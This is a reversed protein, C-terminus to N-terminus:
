LAVVLVLGDPDVDVGILRPHAGPEEDTCIRPTGDRQGDLVSRRGLVGDPVVRGAVRVESAAMTLEGDDVSVDLDAEVPVPGVPAEVVGAVRLVGDALTVQPAVLPGEDMREVVIDTVADASVRVEGRLGGTALQWAVPASALAVELGEVGCADVRSDVLRRPGLDLAVLGIAGALALGLAMRSVGRDRRTRRGAWVVGAVLALLCSATAGILAM